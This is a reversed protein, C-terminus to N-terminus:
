SWRLLLKGTAQKRELAEHAAAVQDAAFVQGVHPVLGMRQVEGLSATLREIWVPDRMVTLANLAYVGTSDGFLRLVSIRPTEILTRAVRLLNRKGDAVGSNMGICVIRGTLGLRARQWTINGGGSANLVLDYGRRSRDARFEDRTLATAGLGEIFAKKHPSTTLGTVEAGLHKALQTAIVGVGGTACEILVRDGARVRAMEVLALHATFYAVPLAAGAALDHGAPLPFVQAAPIVVRSAYGGFYTGAIVRDGVKVTSVRAGVAAVTGSVEYGPVFPKKPADPYLGIRMQVDAFNIGSYAVDIAVEDDGPAPDAVERQVLTAAPGFREILIQHHM